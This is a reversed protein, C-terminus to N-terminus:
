QELYPLLNERILEYGKQNLHLGEISYEPNLDEGDLLKAYLDIFQVSKIEKLLTNLKKIDQNNRRGVTDKHMNQNVPYVSIIYVQLKSDYEKFAKVISKINKFIEEPNSKFLEFDNTGIQLFVKKPRLDFVSNSLRELVGKSTDGGIGRNYVNFGKFYEYVNFDQTISDGIFVIGEANSYKNFCEFAEIKNVFGAMLLLKLFDDKGKKKGYLFVGFSFVILVVITIIYVSLDIM